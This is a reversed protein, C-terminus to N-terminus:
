YRMQRELPKGPTQHQLVGGGEADLGGGEGSELFSHLGINDPEKLVGIETGDM